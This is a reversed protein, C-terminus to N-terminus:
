SAGGLRLLKAATAGIADPDVSTRRILELPRPDGMDFPIDTGLVLRETGILSALFDLQPGAHTITDMFFRDLYESPARDLSVKPESRVEYAHDFRGIQYPLYGGAHVLVLKLSPFRDLVGGHIMRAAAITTELPNGISNTFYFDELGPKLGVYSPHLVLPRDHAEAAAYVPDLESTDLPTGAGADTGIHAGRFGLETITRDLERAAEEPAQLPLHAFALLREEGDVMSALADNARRAFEVAEAEPQDYFFLPPILSLVAIDIGAEDMGALKLSPDQSDPHIPYQFGEPHILRGGEARVGFVGGERAGEEAMFPPTFHTHVDIVTM